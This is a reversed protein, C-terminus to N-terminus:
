HTKGSASTPINSCNGIYKNGISIIEVNKFSNKGNLVSAKKGCDFTNNMLYIRNVPYNARAEYDYGIIENNTDSDAKILTSNRIILEGGNYIDLNRSMEGGKGNIVVNDLVTKKAGSKIGHGEGKAALFQTNKISLVTPSTFYIQHARGGYGNREFTSDEITLNGANGNGLYGEQNDHFYVSRLTINGGENRICAGNESSVAVDQCEWGIIELDKSQNIIVAKENLAGGFSRVGTMEYTANMAKILVGQNFDGAPITGGRLGSMFTALSGFIKPKTATSPDPMRWLWVGAINNSHAAFVDLKPIYIWKDFIRTYKRVPTPGEENKFVEVEGTFHDLLYVERSETWVVMKKLVPHYIMGMDHHCGDIVTSLETEITKFIKGSDPNVHFIKDCLFTIFTRSDYDYVGNATWELIRSSGQLKATHSSFNYRYLDGSKIILAEGTEPDLDSKMNRYIGPIKPNYIWKKQDPIFEWTYNNEQPSGDMCYNFAGMLHAHGTAPDVLFGDYHHTAPPGNEIKPNPCKDPVGDNDSDYTLEGDLPAPTTLRIWKLDIFDFLYVENGGYGTQGGGYFYWKYRIPDFAAGTWDNLVGNSGEVGNAGPAFSEVEARSYLPIKSAPIEKWIGPSMKKIISDIATADSLVSNSVMILLVFLSHNFFINM